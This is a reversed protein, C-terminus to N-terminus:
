YFLINIFIICFHCKLNLTFFSFYFFDYERICNRPKKWIPLKWSLIEKRMAFQRMTTGTGRCFYWIIMNSQFTTKTVVIVSFFCVSVFVVFLRKMIIILHLCTFKFRKSFCQWYNNSFYVMDNNLCSLFLPLNISKFFYFPHQVCWLFFLMLIRGMPQMVLLVFRKRQKLGTMMRLSWTVLCPYRMPANTM